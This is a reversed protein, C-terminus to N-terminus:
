TSSSPFVISGEDLVEFVVRVRAGVTVALVGQSLASSTLSGTVKTQALGVPVVVPVVVPVIVALVGQSLASSTLSGTVKTQALGVPVVVPVVCVASYCALGSKHLGPVV